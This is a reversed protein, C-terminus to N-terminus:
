AKTLKGLEKTLTEYIKVRKRGGVNAGLAQTIWASTFGQGSLYSKLDNYEQTTPIGEAPKSM